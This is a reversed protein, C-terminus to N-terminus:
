LKPPKRLVEVIGFILLVGIMGERVWFSRWHTSGLYTSWYYAYATLVLISLVILFFGMIRKQLIASSLRPHKVNGADGQEIPGPTEPELSM